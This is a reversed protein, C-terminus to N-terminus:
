PLIAREWAPWHEEIYAVDRRFGGGHRWPEPLSWQARWGPREEAAWERAQGIAAQARDRITSLLSRRQQETANYGNLFAGLRGARGAIPTLGRARVDEENWLPACVWAAYALDWARTGPAALDWDLLAFGSTTRLVNWPAFDNHCIIEHPEQPETPLRNWVRDRDVGIEMAADHYRRLLAGLQEVMAEEIYERHGPQWVPRGPVFELLEEGGEVGVPRPVDVGLELLALLHRHVSTTWPGAPRRVMGGTRTIGRSIAGGLLDEPSEGDDV